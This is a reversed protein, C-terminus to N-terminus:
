ESSIRSTEESKSEDNRTRRQNKWSGRKERDEKERRHRYNVRIDIFRYQIVRNKRGRRRGAQRDRQRDIMTERESEAKMGRKETEEM